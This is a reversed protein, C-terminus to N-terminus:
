NKAGAAPQSTRFKKHYTKEVDKRFNPAPAHQNVVMRRLTRRTNPQVRSRAHSLAINDWIVLDGPRYHQKYIQEAPYLLAFAEQLLKESAEQPLESVHSTYYESVFLLPKGSRPHRM